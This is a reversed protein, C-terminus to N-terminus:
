RKSSAVVKIPYIISSEENLVEIFLARIRITKILVM